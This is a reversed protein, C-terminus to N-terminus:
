DQLDFTDDLRSYSLWMQRGLEPLLVASVYPNIFVFFTIFTGAILGKGVHKESEALLEDRLAQKESESIGSM